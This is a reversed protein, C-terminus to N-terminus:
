MAEAGEPPQDLWVQLGTTVVIPTGGPPIRQYETWAPGDMTDSYDPM